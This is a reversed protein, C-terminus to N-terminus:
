LTCMVNDKCLDSFIYVQEGNIFKLISSKKEERGINM